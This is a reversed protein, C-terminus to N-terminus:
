EKIGHSVSVAGLVPPLGRTEAQKYVIIVKSLTMYYDSEPFLIRARRTLDRIDAHGVGGYENPKM